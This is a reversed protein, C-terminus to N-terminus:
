DILLISSSKGGISDEVPVGEVRVDEVSKRISDEERIV